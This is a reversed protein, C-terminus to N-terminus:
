ASLLAKRGSYAQMMDANFESSFRWSARPMQSAYGASVQQETRSSLEDAIHKADAFDGSNISDFLQRYQVANRLGQRAM